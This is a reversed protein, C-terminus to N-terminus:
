TKKATTITNRLRICKTQFIEWVYLKSNRQPETCITSKDTLLDSYILYYKMRVLIYLISYLKVIPRAQVIGHLRQQDIIQCINEHKQIYNKLILKLSGKNCVTEPISLKGFFSRIKSLNVFKDPPM